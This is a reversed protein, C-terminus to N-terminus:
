RGGEECGRLSKRILINHTAGGKAIEFEPKGNKGWVVSERQGKKKEKKRDILM